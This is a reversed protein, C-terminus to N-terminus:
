DSLTATVFAVCMEQDEGWNLWRPAQAMGSVVRQNTATNDFVCEVLLRDRAGLYVPKSLRYDGQWAHNWRDIQLLCERSGNERVIWLGGKKGREHMHLNVAHLNFATAGALRGPADAWSFHVNGDDPPIPMGGLLWSPNYVSLTIIPTVPEVQTKLKVTTRDGQFGGSKPLSYHMTLVVADGPDVKFGMNKFLQPEFFSGGLGNKISGLLGGPCSWGPEATQADLDKLKQVDGAGVTLVISHHMQEPIGPEIDIGTVYRSQAFDTELLFCRTDESNTTAVPTYADPMRLTVDADLEAHQAIAPPDRPSGESAGEDIWSLILAREDSTLAASNEYDACCAAPPWPPMRRTEVASRIAGQLAFVQPYAELSMPAHGVDNHCPMCRRAMLPAIDDHWTAGSRATGSKPDCYQGKPNFELCATFCLLLLLRKM